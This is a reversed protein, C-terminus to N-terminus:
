ERWPRADCDFEYGVPAAIDRGLEDREAIRVGFIIVDKPQVGLSAVPLPPRV